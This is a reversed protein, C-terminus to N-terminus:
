RLVLRTLRLFNGRTLFNNERHAHSDQVEGSKIFEFPFPEAVPLASTQGPERSPADTRTSERASVRRGWYRGPPYANDQGSEPGKLAPHVDDGNDAPGQAGLRMHALGEM